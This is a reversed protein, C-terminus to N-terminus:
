HKVRVLLLLYLWASSELEAEFGRRYFYSIYALAAGTETGIVRFLRLCFEFIGTKTFGNIIPDTQNIQTKDMAM